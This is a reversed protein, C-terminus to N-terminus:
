VVTWGKDTAIKIQEATLKNLNTTGLTLTQTTSVTALNNIISLLTSSPLLSTYTVGFSVSINNPPSFSALKTSTIFKDFNTVNSVDVNDMNLTTISTKEFMSGMNEVSSFNLNSLNIGTLKDCDYFMSGTSTVM